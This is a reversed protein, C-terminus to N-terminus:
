SGKYPQAREVSFFIRRTEVRGLDTTVIITVQSTYAGNDNVPSIAKIRYIVDTQNDSISSSELSLGTDVQIDFSAIVENETLYGDFQETYDNVDGQFMQYSNNVNINKTWDRYFRSWRNWRLSNGSGVPMRNPYPVQNLRELATRGSVNDLLGSAQNFLVTPVEKNFDPILDVALNSAMASKYNAKVNTISNPDPEDEFNYNIVINRSEWVSMMDELRTLALDLDEPTPNVTLGSIRLRSYADKIVDVKHIIRGTDKVAAVSNTM